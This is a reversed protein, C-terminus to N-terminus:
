VCVARRQAAKTAISLEVQSAYLHKIAEKIKEAEKGEIQFVLPELKGILLSIEQIVKLYSKQSPQITTLM